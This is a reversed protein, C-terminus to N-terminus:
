PESGIEPWAVKDLAARNAAPVTAIPAGYHDAAMAALVLADAQDNGTVEVSPYRRIVAALVEDKGANGRGTAYRKVLAPPVEAVPIECMVVLENVVLWWLGARDHQGGQRAQGYSPGEVVVLQRGDYSHVENVIREFIRHLRHARHWLNDGTPKTAIRDVRVDAGEDITAVGTSTLSLDLGVIRM